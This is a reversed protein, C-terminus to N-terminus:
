NVALFVKFTPKFDFWEHHLFRASIMDGGTLQKVRSEALRRGHEAEVAAVFRAGQLRALDNPISDGRKMLLTETPTQMAYESLMAMVTSIFTSKGNAGTGYLIFMVQARTDGTMSYGVARQVFGILNKNGKMIRELFADWTPCIATPDYTVPARKTILDE